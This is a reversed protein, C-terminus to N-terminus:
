RAVGILGLVGVLLMVLGVTSWLAIRWREQLRRAHRRHLYDRRAELSARGDIRPGGHPAM